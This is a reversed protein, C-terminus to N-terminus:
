WQYTDRGFASDWVQPIMNEMWDVPRSVVDNSVAMKFAATIDAKVEDTYADDGISIFLPTGSKALVDLWRRNINWDLERTIGVCDADAAYFANHQPMRFALTNIGYKKTREWEKGSTDDGTRQIEFFGASLHSITNCGIIAVDDGAADRITQYLQKIIEATTKTKDAFEEESVYDDAMQFGWLNFTDGTTFDHKILKYGWNRIRAIDEAVKDLVEPISPDMWFAFDGEQRKLVWNQPIMEVTRLPRIWIGPIAGIEEIQKALVGMDGFLQNGTYWPGTCRACVQWGDDIVMYPKPGDQPACEVIRRTHRLIKEASSDGYNCYWDNGGYIPGTLLKADDCMVKCFDCLADFADGEYIEAVMQCAEIRRGNLALPLRGNRLDVILTIREEDCRWTCITNPRTKVGFCYSRGDEYACFYWPMLRSYDPKKWVFEGYGREFADGLVMADRFYENKYEIELTKIPTEGGTVAVKGCDYEVTVDNYRAIGNELTLDVQGAATFLRINQINM